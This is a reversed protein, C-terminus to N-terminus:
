GWSKGTLRAVAGRLEALGDRMAKAVVSSTEEAGGQLGDKATELVEEGAIAKLCKTLTRSHKRCELRHSPGWATGKDMEALSGLHQCASKIHEIHEDSCVRAAEEPTKGAGAVDPLVVEGSKRRTQKPSTVRTRQTPVSRTKGKVSKGKAPSGGGAGLRSYRALLEDETSADPDEDEREEFPEDDREEIVEDDRDEPVDDPLLTDKLKVSRTKKMRKAQQPPVEPAPDDVEEDGEGDGSIEEILDTLDDDDDDEDGVMDEVPNPPTDQPLPTNSERYMEHLKVASNVLSGVADSFTPKQDGAGAGVVPKQSTVSKPRVSRTAKMRKAPEPPTEPEHVEVESEDALLGQDALEQAKCCAALAAQHPSNLVLRLGPLVAKAYQKQRNTMVRWRKITEAQALTDTGALPVGAEQAEEQTPNRCCGEWGDKEGPLEDSQSVSTVGDLESLSSKVAELEEPDVNKPHVHLVESDETGDEKRISRHYFSHGKMEEDDGYKQDAVDAIAERIAKVAESVEPEQPNILAEEDKRKGVLFGGQTGTSSQMKGFGSVVSPNSKEALPRIAKLVLPSISEGNIKGRSIMQRVVGCTSNAPVGVFSWELLEWREYRFGGHGPPKNPLPPQGYERPLPIPESLPNFGISVGRLIGKAVLDFVQSAEKTSQHFYCTARVDRGPNITVSLIGQPSESVGVPFPISQHGFFVVPSRRYAILDCGEPIVEDGMRDKSPTTIVASASMSSEDVGIIPAKASKADLIETLAMVLQEGEPIALQSPGAVSLPRDARRSSLEPPLADKRIM